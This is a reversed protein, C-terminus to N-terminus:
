SNLFDARSDGNQQIGFGPNKISAFYTCAHSAYPGLKHINADKEKMGTEKWWGGDAWGGAAARSVDVPAAKFPIGKDRM